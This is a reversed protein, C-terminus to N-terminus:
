GDRLWHVDEATLTVKLVDLSSTLEAMSLPGIIPFLDFDQALNYALALGAVTTGRKAALEVARARRALNASNHWCRVLEPDPPTAAIARDTFFGRAQSSWAFLPTGTRRLWALSAADSAALCGAWPPEIMDALSFQNSLASFGTKGHKAAWANAEDIRAPTWNSGGYRRIRGAGVHSDLVDVWEGVPISTDDRHLFYIDICDRQLGALSKELQPTVHSPHCYPTHAGKGIVTVSNTLGRSAMWTGLVRDARGQGYHHATDFLTGGAQHYADLIPNAQEQTELSSTGIALHSVPRPINALTYTKM